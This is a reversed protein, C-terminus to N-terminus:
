AALGSRSLVANLREAEAEAAVARAEADVARDAENTLRQNELELEEVRKTLEAKTPPHPRVAAVGGTEGALVKRYAEDCTCQGAKVRGLFGADAVARAKRYAVECDQRNNRVTDGLGADLVLKVQRYAEAFKLEGSIVVEGLGLEEVRKARTIFTPSVQAAQSMDATSAPMTPKRESADAPASLDTSLVSKGPRGRQRWAHLRVAIIARQGQNWQPHHLCNVIIFALPDKGQFETLPVTLGLDMAANYVEWDLLIQGDLTIIERVQGSQQLKGTFEQRVAAPQEGFAQSPPHRTRREEGTSVASDPPAGPAGATRQQESWQFLPYEPPM